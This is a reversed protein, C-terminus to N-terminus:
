PKGDQDKFESVEDAPLLEKRVPAAPRAAEANDAQVKVGVLTYTGDKALREWKLQEFGYVRNGDPDTYVVSYIKKPNLPVEMLMDTQPHVLQEAVVARAFMNISSENNGKLTIMEPYTKKHQVPDSCIDPNKFIPLAFLFVGFGLMVLVPFHTNLRVGFPLEVTTSQKGESDLVIIRKSLLILSGVIMILGGVSCMIFIIWSPSIDWNM